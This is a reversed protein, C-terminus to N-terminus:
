ASSSLPKTHNRELVQAGEPLALAPTQFQVGDVTIGVASALNSTLRAYGKPLRGFAIVGLHETCPTM